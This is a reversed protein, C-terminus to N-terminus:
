SIQLILFGFFNLVICFKVTMDLHPKLLGVSNVLFQNVNAENGPGM